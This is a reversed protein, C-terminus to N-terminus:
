QPLRQPEVEVTHGCASCNFIDVSSFDPFHNRHECEPCIVIPYGHTLDQPVPKSM